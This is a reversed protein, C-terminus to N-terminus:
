EMAQEATEYADSWYEELMKALCSYRLQHRDNKVMNAITSRRGPLVCLRRARTVGTYLLNRYQLKQPTEAVPIIVAPFECGQSKHITIAYALELEDLQETAYTVKRDDFQVTVSLERTDVKQIYGIDGNYAGAGIEGDDKEYQIDYDNCIQMVKDGQRWIRKGRKLEKKGLVSPNLLNQLIENMTETGLLGKRSPCLVQIDRLPDFGYSKPLRTSVIDCVLQQCDAGYAEMMFFDDKKGGQLPLTGEVIRHANSIIFSQAAQRFIETLRVSPIKGSQLLEGLVNGAGVSPLQDADGVLILRASPRLATLLSEFLKSDVMSMEDVIVVDARLPNSANHVFRLLETGKSFDVELLRHLTKAERQTLESLRKAARGTPAALVVRDMQQEFLAVIGNIITTKGTGPGGTLLMIPSQLAMQIANKQLSAYQIGQSQELQAISQQINGKAKIPRQLMKCVMNAINFECFYLDELFIYQKQAYEKAFLYKEALANKLHFEMVELPQQVLSCAKSCLQHAPLCTHGNQLNYRLVYEFAAWIRVYELPSLGKQQIMEEVQAFKLYAPAACLLYPNQTIAEVTAVGFHRYIAMAKPASIGMQNLFLISERLGQKRQFEQSIEQAKKHTIGKVETLKEPQNAIIAFTDEGFASVIKKATAAGIHPLVGSALYRLIGRTTEPMQIVCSDAQFQFGFTPHTIFKGTVVIEEGQNVEGLEGVVTVLDQDAQLEIVHYGNEPNAYVIHEVIGKMQLIEAM